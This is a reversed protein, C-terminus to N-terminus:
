QSIVMESTSSMSLTRRPVFPIALLFPYSVTVQVQDGPGNCGPSKCTGGAPYASWATTATLNNSNIGPFGISQVYTQINPATAPCATGFSTCASGRVVAYRTAERASESVANYTYLALAMLILGFVVVLLVSAGVAFAVITSGREDRMGPESRGAAPRLQRRGIPPTV